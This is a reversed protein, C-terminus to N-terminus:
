FPILKVGDLCKATNQKMLCVNISINNLFSDKLHRKQLKTRKSHKESNNNNNKYIQLFQSHPRTSVMRPM